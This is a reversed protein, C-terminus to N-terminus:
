SDTNDYVPAHGALRCVTVDKFYKMLCANSSDNTVSGETNQLKAILPNTHLCFKKLATETCAKILQLFCSFYVRNM